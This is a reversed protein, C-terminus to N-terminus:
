VPTSRMTLYFVVVTSLVLLALQLQTPENSPSFIFLLVSALGLASAIVFLLLTRTAESLLPGRLRPRRDGM